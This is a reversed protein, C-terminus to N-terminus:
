SPSPAVSERMRLEGDKTAFRDFVEGMHINVVVPQQAAPQFKTRMLRRKMAALREDDTM